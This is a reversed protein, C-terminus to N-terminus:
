LNFDIEKKNIKKLNNNINSFVKSNFFSIRASFPSPHSSTIIIHNNNTILEKYNEAFKGWLVFIIPAEKQNLKKIVENTFIDWRIHKHSGPRKERVTLHSNILLVGQRAWSTLDGHNPVSIGLDNELEKYINRLSPPIKTGENVSFALGNAEGEGHYPDQGIIVVKVNEYPTLQYAKFLDKYNPYIKYNKYEKQVEKILKSFSTSELYESLVEDWSNNIM